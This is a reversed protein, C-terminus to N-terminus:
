RNRDASGSDSENGNPDATITNRTGNPDIRVGFKSLLHVAFDRIPAMLRVAVTRESLAQESRQSRPAAAHAPLLSLASVLAASVLARRLKPQFM